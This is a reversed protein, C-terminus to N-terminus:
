AMGHRLILNESQCESTQLVKGEGYTGKIQFPVEIQIILFSILWANHICGIQILFQTLHTYHEDFVTGIYM